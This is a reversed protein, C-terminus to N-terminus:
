RTGSLAVRLVFADRVLDDPKGEYVLGWDRRDLSFEATASVADGSVDVQAPFSITKAIGRITLDGTVDYTGPTAPAAVISTSRFTAEPHQEVWLFDESRLHEHFRDHMPGSEEPDCAISATDVSFALSATEPTGQGPDLTGTWSGFSCAHSRTVKSAVFDISGELAIPGSGSAAEIPAAPAAPEQPAPEIAAGSLDTESVAASPVGDAPDPACAGVAILTMALASTLPFRIM